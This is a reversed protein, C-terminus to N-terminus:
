SAELKGVRRQLEEVAGWLRRNETGVIDILNDFRGELRTLGDRVDDLRNNTSDLRSNTERILDALTDFGRQMVKALTDDSM